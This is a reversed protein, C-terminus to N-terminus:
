NIFEGNLKSRMSVFAIMTSPWDLDQMHGEVSCCLVQAPFRSTQKSSCCLPGHAQLQASLPSQLLHSREFVKITICEINRLFNRNGNNKLFTLITFYKTSFLIARVKDTITDLERKKAWSCSHEFLLLPCSYSPLSSLFSLFLLSNAWGSRVKRTEGRM